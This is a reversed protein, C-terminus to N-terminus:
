EFTKNFITVFFRNRETFEPFSAVFDHNASSYAAESVDDHVSHEELGEVVCERFDFEGEATGLFIVFDDFVVREQVFNVVVFVGLGFVVADDVVGCGSTTDIFGHIVAALDVAAVDPGSTASNGEIGM